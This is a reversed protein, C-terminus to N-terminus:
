PVSLQAAPPLDDKVGRMSSVTDQGPHSRQTVFVIDSIRLLNEGTEGFTLVSKEMSGLIQVTLSAQCQYTM